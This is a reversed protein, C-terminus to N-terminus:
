VMVPSTASRIDGANTRSGISGDDAREPAEGPRDVESRLVSASCREGGPFKVELTLADVGVFDARSRYL